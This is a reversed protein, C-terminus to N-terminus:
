SVGGTQTCCVARLSTPKPPKLCMHMCVCACVHVCMCVAYWSGRGLVQQRDAMKSYNIFMADNSPQGIQMDASVFVCVCVCVYHPFASSAPM